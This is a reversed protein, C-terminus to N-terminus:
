ARRRRRALLAVALALAALGRADLAGGGSDDGANAPPPTGAISASLFLVREFQTTSTGQRLTIVLDPASLNTNRPTYTVTFQCSGAPALVLGNCAPQVSFNGAEAGFAQVGVITLSENTAVAHRITVTQPASSTNAATASFTLQSEHEPLTEPTDALYAAINRAQQQTLTRFQAMASQNQVAGAFRTMATDFSIDAYPDNSGSIRARRDEVSGHCQPCSMTIGAGGSSPTNNFLTRGALPDDAAQAFTLTGSCALALGALAARVAPPM